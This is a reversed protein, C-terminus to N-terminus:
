MFIPEEKVKLNALYNSPAEPSIICEEDGQKMDFIDVLSNSPAEPNIIYQGDGKMKDMVNVLFNSPAEPSVICEEDRQKMDFIDVLSNSPAEPNIIYQGEGQMKDMVNVLFNSPAEPSIICQGDGQKEDEEDSKKRGRNRNLPVKSSSPLITLGGAAQELFLQHCINKHKAFLRTRKEDGTENRYHSSMHAAFKQSTLFVSMCRPCTYPGYKNHPLSHTRGDGVKSSRDIKVDAVKVESEAAPKKEQNRRSALESEAARKKEQNRNSVNFELFNIDNQNLCLNQNNDVNAHDQIM